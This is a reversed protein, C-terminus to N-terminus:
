SQQVGILQDLTFKYDVTEVEEISELQRLELGPFISSTQM